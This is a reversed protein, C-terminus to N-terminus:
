LTILLYLTWIVNMGFCVSNTLLVSKFKDQNFDTEVKYPDVHIKKNFDQKDKVKFMIHCM